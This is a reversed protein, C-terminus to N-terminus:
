TSNKLATDVNEHFQGAGQKYKIEYNYGALELATM